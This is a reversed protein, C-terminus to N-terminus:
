YVLRYFTELMLKTLNYNQRWAPPFRGKRFLHLCAMNDTCIIAYPRIVHAIWIAAYEAELIPLNCKYAKLKNEYPSIIGIQSPTADTYMPPTNIFTKYCM